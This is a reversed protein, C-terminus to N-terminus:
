KQKRLNIEVCIIETDNPIVHEELLRSPINENAYMLLGGGGWVETKGIANPIGRTRFSFTLFLITLKPKRFLFYALIKAVLDM